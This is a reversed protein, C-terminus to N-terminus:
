TSKPNNDADQESNNDFNSTSENIIIPDEVTDGQAEIKIPANRATTSPNVDMEEDETPTNEALSTTPTNETPGSPHDTKAETNATPSKRKALLRQHMQHM